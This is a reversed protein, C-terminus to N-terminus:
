QFHLVWKLGLCLSCLCLDLDIVKGYVSKARFYRKLYTVPWNPGQSENMQTAPQWHCEWSAWIGSCLKLPWVSATEERGRRDAAMSQPRAGYNRGVFGGGLTLNGLPAACIDTCHFHLPCRVIILDNCWKLSEIITISGVSLWATKLYNYWGWRWKWETEIAQTVKPLDNFEWIWNRKSIYCM